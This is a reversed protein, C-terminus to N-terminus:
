HGSDKYNHRFKLYSMMKKSLDRSFKKKDHFDIECTVETESDMTSTTTVDTNSNNRDLFRHLEEFRNAETSDVYNKSTDDKKTTDPINKAKNDELDEKQDIIKNSATNEIYDNCDDNIHDQKSNETKDKEKNVMQDQKNNDKVPSKSSHKQRTSNYDELFEAYDFNKHNKQHENIKFDQSNVKKDLMNKDPITMHSKSYSGQRSSKLHNTQPMRIEKVEHSTNGDNMKNDILDQTSKINDKNKTDDPQKFNRSGSAGSKKDKKFCHNSSRAKDNSGSLNLKQSSTSCNQRNGIDSTKIQFNSSNAMTKNGEGDKSELNHNGIEKLDNEEISATNASPLEKGLENTNEKVSDSLESDIVIDHLKHPQKKRGGAEKACCFMAALKTRLFNTKPAM